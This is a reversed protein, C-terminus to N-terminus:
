IFPIPSSAWDGKHAFTKNIIRTDSILQSTTSSSSLHSHPSPIPLISTLEMNGQGKTELDLTQEKCLSSVAPM